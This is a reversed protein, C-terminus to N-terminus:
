SLQQHYSFDLMQHHHNGLYCCTVVWKHHYQPDNIANHKGCISRVTSMGDKEQLEALQAEQLQQQSSVM